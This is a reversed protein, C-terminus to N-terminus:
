NPLDGLPQDFARPLTALLMDQIGADDALLALHDLMEATTEKDMRVILTLPEPSNKTARRLRTSLDNAQVLHNEFYYRGAKDVGVSVVPGSVGSLREGGSSGNAGPLRIRVGPTYVLSSLLVFMVLLFFVSALPAADLQGRFIRANRPFKM